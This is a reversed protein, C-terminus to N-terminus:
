SPPKLYKDLRKLPQQPNDKSQTSGYHLGAPSLLVRPLKQLSPMQAVRKKGGSSIRIFEWMQWKDGEKLTAMLQFSFQCVVLLLFYHVRVGPATYHRDPHAAPVRPNQSVRDMNTTLSFLITLFIISCRRAQLHTPILSVLLVQWGSPDIAM